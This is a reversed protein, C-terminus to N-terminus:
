KRLWYNVTLGSVLGAGFIFAKTQWWKPTEKITYSSINTTIVYPNSNKVEIRHEARKFLSAKKTGIVMSMENFTKLTDIMFFSPAIYAKVSWFKNSDTLYFQQFDCPITDTFYITDHVLQLETKISTASEVTKFSKQLEFLQKNKEAIIALQERNKLELTTNYSVYGGFADKYTMVTDKYKAIEGIYITEKNTNCKQMFFMIILLVIIIIYPIFKGFSYFYQKTYDLVNKKTPYSTSIAM